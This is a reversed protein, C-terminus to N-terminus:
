LLGLFSLKLWFNYWVLHYCPIVVLARKGEVEGTNYWVLHYCPIVVKSFESFLTTNNYWVLHYCPIVVPMDPM